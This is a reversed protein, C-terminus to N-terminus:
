CKVTQVVWFDCALDPNTVFEYPMTFYGGQGWKPGWSNRVLFRRTTDDYGCLIVAHGGLMREDKSPMPVNGTEAVCESEFSEYVSFGFAIPLGEVGITAKLANLTQDVRKYSLATHKTAETFAAKTPKKAFKVINYPWTKERCVGLRAISKIGDRIEAGADENITGEMARENYYIFLRSPVFDKAKQKRVDFQVCGAIANGTCSGLNGQDYPEEPFNDKLSASSPVTSMDIHDVSFVHDRADPTDPRWGYRAIKRANM